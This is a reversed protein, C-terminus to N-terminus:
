IEALFKLYFDRCRIVSDAYVCENPGHANEGKPGFVITPMIRGFANFDGVSKGYAIDPERGYFEKYSTLFKKAWPSNVDLIYPELFPTDRKMWSLKYSCKLRLKGLLNDFDVMVQEKGEGIITHRDVRITCRDPVSLSDGGGNIKLVCISGKGLTPHSNLPLRRLAEVIKAADEIANAGCEPTAGHASCGIVNIEIVYRGRAGLKLKEDTDEPILCLSEKDGMKLEEKLLKELLVHVGKSNGEEDSVATFILNTGERAAKKFVDMAIAVGAKMDCAGLGFIRNSEIRPKLPESEWGQMIDVTDMHCNLIVTPKEPNKIHRVIVNPGLGEVSQMEVDAFDLQSAIFEAIEHENGTISEISILKKTLEVVDM